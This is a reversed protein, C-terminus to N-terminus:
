DSEHAAIKEIRSVFRGEGLRTKVSDGVQLQRSSKIISDNKQVIAYGRELTALPSIAHLTQTTAIYRQRAQTLASQIARILRQETNHLNHRQQKAMVAPNQQRLRHTLNSTQQNRQTHQRQWSQQLRSELRRLHEGKHALQQAPHQQQLARYLWDLQQTSQELVYEILQQLKLEYAKFTNLWEAQDPAAHEAAASPTPARLDAVFDTITFDTEHGVASIVPIASAAIARAVSEENFPWLDELSGGGRGVILVDAVGHENAQALARVIEPAASEGQVSAPYLTIPIAPFRRKLVSLIDQIAAGSPSTIIGIHRPLRPIPRKRHTEFLGEALLKQKLQEFARQLAGSGAEEMQEIILQYDGRPEYLSVQATAIVHLGNDPKFRLGRQHPRFMACRIQAREDKLSFYLHGSAPRTLNSIEGEIRISLFHDSLLLRTERNLQSVSYVKEPQPTPM